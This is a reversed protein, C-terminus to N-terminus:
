PRGGKSSSGRDDALARLIEPMGGIQNPPGWWMNAEVIVPGRPTLAIDWGLARLPAFALSAKRVLECAKTWDPLVVDEFSAGTAPRVALSTLSLSELSERVAPGLSGDELSISAILNGTRGDRINDVVADGTVIKLGAEVVRSEGNRELLTHIRATQLTGSGSL